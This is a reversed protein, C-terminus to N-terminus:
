AKFLLINFKKFLQQPHTLKASEVNKGIERPFKVATNQLKGYAEEYLM